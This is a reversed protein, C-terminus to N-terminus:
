TRAFFNGSSSITIVREGVPVTIAAGGPAVYARGPDMQISGSGNAIVTSGDQRSLYGGSIMVPTSRTNNLYVNARAQDITYNASDIASISGFFQSAIGAATTQYWQWWAYLRQVVTAGDLDSINVHIALGDASFETCTSGDIGNSVYVTDASQTNLFQLGASTLIGVAEIPLKDPHDARLRITKDVTWTTAYSLGNTSLTTNLIEISDTISYLQVRSGSALAAATITVHLGASDTYSGSVAGIVTYSTSFTDGTSSSIHVARSQNGTQCLDAMCAEFVQRPTATGTVTITQTGHDVAIPLALAASESLTLRTDVVQAAQPLWQYGYHRVSQTMPYHYVGDLWAFGSTSTSQVTVTANIDGTSAPTFTFTFDHWADATAPATFSATVGQGSLAISPPTATGYTVDFRLSGKIVQAVGAVAPVTFTYAIATNTVKPQIKVAYTSRKRTSSDTVTTQFYSLVRNDDPNGNIATINARQGQTPVSGTTNTSTLTNGGFNCNTLDVTTPSNASLQSFIRQQTSVSCAELVASGVVNNVLQTLSHLNANTFKLRGAAVSFVQSAAWAAGGSILTDISGANYASTYCVTARYLVCDVARVSCNDGFYAGGSSAHPSYCAWNNFEHAAASPSGAGIVISPVTGTHYAACDYLTQKAAGGGRISVGYYAPFNQAAGAWGATSGINEFLVNKIDLLMTGTDSCSFTVAAPYTSSASRVCVNSSLNGVRCGSVRAYNLATLVWSAGSGSALTTVQARSPDDTDSAIVVTDGVSWNDAAAVTIAVNSGASPANTLTTNRTRAVGVFAWTGSSQLHSTMAHQGVTTSGHNLYIDATVGSPIPDATTGYDVTGGTARFLTGACRLITSTSRSAKLVGNVVIANSAATTSSTNDGYTGDAEDYTVTHGAAIVIKHGAGSPPKVGGVWTAGASWLGTAASTYTAM